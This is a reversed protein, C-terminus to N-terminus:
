HQTVQYKQLHRLLWPTHLDKIRVDQLFAVPPAVLVSLSCASVKFTM